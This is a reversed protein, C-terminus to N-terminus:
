AAKESSNYNVFAIETQINLKRMEILYQRLTMKSFYSLEDVSKKGAIVLVFRLKEALKNPDCELKTNENVISALNSNFENENREAVFSATVLAQNLLHSFTGSGTWHKVFYLRGDKSLVDAIEIPTTKKGGTSPYFNKKHLEIGDLVNVINENYETETSAIASDWDNLKTGGYAVTLSRLDLELKDAFEKSFLWWIGEFFVAKRGNFLKPLEAVLSKYVSKNKPDESHITIIDSKLAGNNEILRNRLIPIIANLQDLEYRDGNYKVYVEDGDTYDDLNQLMKVSGDDITNTVIHHILLDDLAEKDSGGKVPMVNDFVSNMELSDDYYMDLLSTAKEFLEENEWTRSIGIKAISGVVKESDGDITNYGQLKRPAETSMGILQESGGQMQDVLERSLKIFQGIFNISDVATLMDPLIIKSSTMYGFDSVLYKQEVMHYGYGFPVIMLHSHKGDSTTVNFAMIASNSTSELNPLDDEAFYNLTKQWAPPTPDSKKVLISGTVNGANVINTRHLISVDEKLVEDIDNVDEKVLIFYLQQKMLSRMEYKNNINYM